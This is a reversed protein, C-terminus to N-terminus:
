YDDDEDKIQNLVWSVKDNISVDIPKLEIPKKKEVSIYKKKRDTLVMNRQEELKKILKYPKPMFTFSRTEEHWQLEIIITWYWIINSFFWRSFSDVKIIKFSDIVEIDDRLIFSCNIVFIQDNKIIFLYNYHEILWLILKIISYNVLFFVLPFFLYATLDHSSTEMIKLSVLFIFFSILLIFISKLFLLIVLVFHKKIITYWDGSYYAM